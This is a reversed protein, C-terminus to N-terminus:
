APELRAACGSLTVDLVIRGSVAQGNVVYNAKRLKGKSLLERFQAETLTKGAIEFWVVFDCGEKWRSCGWGKKGQIVQGQKCKPCTMPGDDVEKKAKPEAKAKEVKAPAVEAPKAITKTSPPAPARDAFNPQRSESDAERAQAEGRSGPTGQEQPESPGRDNSQQGYSNQFAFKLENAENLELAAEFSKGAKSVFGKLPQTKRKSLLVGVLSASLDRQALKKPLSFGCGKQCAYNWKSEQVQGKCKPCAGLSAGTVAPQATGGASQGSMAPAGKIKNIIDKVYDVIDSMFKVRTEENRAISALRAEWSGTLEPSRLSEVPIADIVSMGTPTPKVLKKDRIAYTRKFLTEITAARTAPTGLGCDKMAQRLQDDEIKKGASEMASLLSAETYRPPPNTKKTLVDFLGDLLEGDALIPLSQEEDKKDDSDPNIGAVDQWGALLRVKGKTIFRDPLPPLTEIYKPDDEETKQETKQQETRPPAPRSAEPQPTGPGVLISVETSAFEADPYFIGIFRRVVLDYIRREEGSLADLRFGKGTPIIAHHDSVKSNNFVRGSPKPPNSILPAVFAAYETFNQLSAFVGPLDKAIDNTLFRSDTRPYTLVKHKEYLAQAIELTKAATFGYRRNATQQLSTLDFLLPPQEKVVKKQVSEVRPGKPDTSKGNANDRAAVQDAIDKIGCRAIKQYQWTAEFKAKKQTTFTGRVEWYDKPVFNLIERERDVLLALTPTQVRGISYLTSNVGVRSKTTLARTANMGVLWDAESRCRAADALGDFQVSPKLQAFGQKIAVDTLSSIWLRKIPLRSGALEYVYRFILEGERGADCANIVETFKKHRLQGKVVKFQAFTEKTARLKFEKPIMPLLDLRWAKWTPEYAAPEELEVLHGVCWSIVKGAGELYERTGGKVGLVRGLDRGVSPKEAIILQM